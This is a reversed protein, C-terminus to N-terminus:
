KTSLSVHNSGQRSEHVEILAWDLEKNEANRRFGSGAWVRGLDAHRRYFEKRERERVKHSELAAEWDQEKRANVMDQCLGLDYQLKKLTDHHDCLAPQVVEESFMGPKVGNVDFSEDVPTRPDTPWVVHWCTVGFRKKADTKPNRLTLYGGFSGAMKDFGKISISAGLGVDKKYHSEDLKKFRQPRGRFIAVRLDFHAVRECVETLDRKMQRYRTFDAEEDLSIIVTIPNDNHSHPAGYRFVDMARWPFIQTPDQLVRLFQGRISQEWQSTIPDSHSIPFTEYEHFRPDTLEVVVDNYGLQRFERLTNWLPHFWSDNVDEDPKRASITFVKYTHGKVPALFADMSYWRVSYAELNRRCISKLHDPIEPDIAWPHNQSFTLVEDFIAPLVPGGLRYDEEFLVIPDDASLLGDVSPLGNVASHSGDTGRGRRPSVTAPPSYPFM